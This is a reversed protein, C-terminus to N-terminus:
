DEVSFTLPWLAFLDYTGEVGEVPEFANEAGVHSLGALAWAQTNSTDRPVLYVLAASAQADFEGVNCPRLWIAETEGLGKFYIAADGIKECVYEFSLIPYEPWMSPEVLEM